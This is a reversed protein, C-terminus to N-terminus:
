ITIDPQETDGTAIIQIKEAIKRRDDQFVESFDGNEIGFFRQVAEAMTRPSKDSTPDTHRIKCEKLLLADISNTIKEILAPVPNASQNDFAAYNNESKGYPRWNKPDSFIPNKKLLKFVEEEGDCKYLDLFIKKTDM